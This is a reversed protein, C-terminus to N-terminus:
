PVQRKKRITSSTLTSFGQFVMQIFQMNGEGPENPLIVGSHGAYQEKFVDMSQWLTDDPVRISKVARSEVTNESGKQLLELRFTGLVNDTGTCSAIVNDDSSGESGCKLAKFKANEMDEMSIQLIVSTKVNETADMPPTGAIRAGWSEGDPTKV